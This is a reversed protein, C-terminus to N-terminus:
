TEHDPHQRSRIGAYWVAKRAQEAFDPVPLAHLTDFWPLRSEADLQIVPRIDGARDFAAIAIDLGGAHEFTLPTGCDGCFGRRATDSSQFHRLEGRSWVVDHVTVLLGGVGAFAKQCMRCHCLSARGLRTARFRVAGCQCGGTWLDSM